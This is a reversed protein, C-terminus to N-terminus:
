GSLWSRWSGYFGPIGSFIVRYVIKQFADFRQFAHKTKLFCSSPHAADMSTHFLHLGGMWWRLRDPSLTIDAWYLRIHVHMQGVSNGSNEIRLVM